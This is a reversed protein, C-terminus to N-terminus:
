LLILKLKLYLLNYSKNVALSIEESNEWFDLKGQIEEIETKLGAVKIAEFIIKKLEETNSEEKIESKGSSISDQYSTLNLSYNNKM